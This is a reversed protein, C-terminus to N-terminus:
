SASPPLSSLRFGVDNFRDGPLFGYREACRFYNANYNLWSGGRLVRQKQEGDWWDSCWEWVNGAMDVLGFPGAPFSGVASTGGCDGWTKTSCRCKSADWKKGWPYVRGDGGSAAFEWQAESPLLLGAWDAYAKCDDWSVNVIPHELVADWGDKWVPFDPLEPMTGGLEAKYEALTLPAHSQGEM